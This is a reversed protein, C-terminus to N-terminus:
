FYFYILSAVVSVVSVMTMTVVSPPRATVPCDSRVRDNIMSVSAFMGPISDSSDGVDSFDKKQGINRDCIVGGDSGGSGSAGIGSSGTTNMSADSSIPTHVVEVQIKKDPTSSVTPVTSVTSQGSETSDEDTEMGEPAQKVVPAPMVSRTLVPAVPISSVNADNPSVVPPAGVAADYSPPPSATPANVVVGTAATGSAPAKKKNSVRAKGM